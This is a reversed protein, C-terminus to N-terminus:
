VKEFDNFCGVGCGVWWKKHEDFSCDSQIM